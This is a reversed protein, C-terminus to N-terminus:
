TYVDVAVRVMGHQADLADPIGTVGNFALTDYTAGADREHRLVQASNNVSDPQPNAVVANVGSTYPSPKLAGNATGDFNEVISQLSYGNDPRVIRINDLYLEAPLNTGAEVMFVLSDAQSAAINSDPTGAYNLEVTHWEGAQG